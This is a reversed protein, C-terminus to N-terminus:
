LRGRSFYNIIEASSLSQKEARKSIFSRNRSHLRAINSNSCFLQLNNSIQLFIQKRPLQRELSCADTFYTAIKINWEEVDRKLTNLIISMGANYQMLELADSNYSLIVVINIM